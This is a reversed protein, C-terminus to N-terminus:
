VVTNLNVTRKEYYELMGSYGAKKLASMLDRPTPNVLVSIGRGRLEESLEQVSFKKLNVPTVNILIKEEKENNEKIEKEAKQAQKELRRKRHYEAAIKSACEKCYAQRGDKRLHNVSFADLPLKKGCKLCTKTEM